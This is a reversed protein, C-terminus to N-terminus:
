LFAPDILGLTEFGKLRHFCSDCQGCAKGSSLPSYCSHTMSYDVGLRLGEQIIESKKLFLLPSHIQITQGEVGMRTSTQAMQQFSQLFELRCDPYGSYDVENVGLFFNSIGMSEGYSLAYSLFLVNRAPVYTSPIQGENLDSHVPVDIDKNVLSSSSFVRTDLSIVLPDKSLLKQVMRVCSQTEVSHKQGYCFHLPYVDFGQDCAMALVTASDLGGSVLVVAKLSM